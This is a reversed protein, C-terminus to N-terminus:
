SARPVLWGRETWGQFWAQVLAAGRRRPLVPTAEDLARGLDGDRAVADLVTFAAPHLRDIRRQLGDRYVAVFRGPSARAPGLRGRPEDAATRRWWTDAATHLALVTLHPQLALPTTALAAAPASPRV